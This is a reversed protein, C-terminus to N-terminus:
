AAGPWNGSGEAKPSCLSAKSGSLSSASLGHGKRKEGGRGFGPQLCGILMRPKCPNPIPMKDQTGWMPEQLKGKRVELILLSFSMPLSFRSIARLGATDKPM